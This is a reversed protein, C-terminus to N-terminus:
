EDSFEDDQSARLEAFSVLDMGLSNGLKVLELDDDTIKTSMLKLFKTLMDESM